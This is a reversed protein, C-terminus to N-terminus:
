GGGGRLRELVREEVEREAILVEVLRGVGERWREEGGEMERRKGEQAGKRERNVKGVEERVRVLDGEIDELLYELQSNAM